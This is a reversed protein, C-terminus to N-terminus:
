VYNEAKAGGEAYDGSSQKSVAAGGPQSEADSDSGRKRSKKKEKKDKKVEGGKQEKKHKHQVALRSRGALL